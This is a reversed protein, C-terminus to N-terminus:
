AASEIIRRAVHEWDFHEDVFEKARNAKHRIDEPDDIVLSIRSAFAKYVDDSIEQPLPPIYRSETRGFLDVGTGREANVGILERLGGINSVIVPTGIHMCEIAALSLAEASSPFIVTDAARMFAFVKDNDISGIFHVHATLNLERVRTELEDKLRGEGLILCIFDERLKILHPLTEVLFQIGNKDVLRRVTLLLKKGPYQSRIDSGQELQLVQDIRSFDVATEVTVNSNYPRVIDAIEASTTIVSTAFRLTLYRYLYYIKPHRADIITGLGHAFVTIRKRNIFAAIVAFMSLVYTYNAFVHQRTKVLRYIQLFLGPMKFINKKSLKPLHIVTSNPIHYTAQIDGKTHTAITVAGVHLSLQKAFNYTYMEAGGFLPLYTESFIVCSMRDRM